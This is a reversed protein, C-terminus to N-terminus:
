RASYACASDEATLGIMGFAAFAEALADAEVGQAGTPVGEGAELAARGQAPNAAGM